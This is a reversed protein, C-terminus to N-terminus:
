MGSCIIGSGRRARGKVLVHRQKLERVTRGHAAARDRRTTRPTVAPARTGPHGLVARLPTGTPLSM